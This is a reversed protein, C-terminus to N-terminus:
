GKAKSSNFFGSGDGQHLASKYSSAKIASVVGVGLLFLAILLFVPQWLLGVLGLALSLVGTLIANVLLKDKRVLALESKLIGGAYGEILLNKEESQRLHKMFSQPRYVYKAHWFPIHILQIGAIELETRSDVLLDVYSKAIGHHYLEVHQRARRMAEEEAIQVNLIPMGNSFKFDFYERVDYATLDEEEGDRKSRAGLNGDVRGRSFTSDLPYGDWDIPVPEKAEHLRSLGWHEFLNQRATVAWRYNRRFQGSEGIYAGGPGLEQLSRQSRRVLGKWYTHAEMSIIWYPVSYGHISTIFYESEVLNPNHHLRKLWELIIGKIQRSDCANPIIYHDTYVEKKGSDQEMRFTVSCFPCMMMYDRLDYQSSANCSPCTLEHM